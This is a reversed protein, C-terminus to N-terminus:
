IERDQMMEELGNAKVEMEGKDSDEGKGSEGGVTNGEEIGDSVPKDGNNGDQDEKEKGHSEGREAKDKEYIEDPDEFFRAHLVSQEATWEAGFDVVAAEANQLTEDDQRRKERSAEAAANTATQKCTPRPMKVKIKGLTIENKVVKSSNPLVQQPVGIKKATTCIVGLAKSNIMLSAFGTSM